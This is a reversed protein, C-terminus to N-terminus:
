KNTVSTFRPFLQLANNRFIDEVEGKSFGQYNEIQEADLGVIIDPAFNADSGYLIHSTGATDKLSYLGIDHVTLATDYYFHDFYEKLDLLNAGIRQKIANDYFAIRKRIFPITGGGHSLIIKVDPFREITGGIILNAVARTTNFTFEIVFDANLFKPRVISAPPASPHMHVVAKRKNLEVFIPEFIPDGLFHEEYNSLLGIGDLKLVDLAYRIEEIAADVDPLPVLAFGGFRGPYKKIMNAQFENVERAIKKSLEKDKIPLLAPESISVIATQIGSRDMLELSDEPVWSRIGMGGSYSVGASRLADLYPEPIIHHHVDIKFGKTEM